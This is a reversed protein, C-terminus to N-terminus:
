GRVQQGCHFDALLNHSFVSTRLAGFSSAELSQLTRTWVIGDDILKQDAAMKKCLINNYGGTALFKWIRSVIKSIVVGRTVCTLLKGSDSPCCIHLKGRIHSMWMKEPLHGSCTTSPSTQPLVRTETETQVERCCVLPSMSATEHNLLHVPSPDADVTAHVMRQFLGLWLERNRYFDRVLVPMLVREAACSQREQATADGVTSSVAFSKIQCAALALQAATERKFPM